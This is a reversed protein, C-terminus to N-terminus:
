PDSDSVESTADKLRVHATENTPVSTDWELILIRVRSTRKARYFKRRNDNEGDVGEGHHLHGGM